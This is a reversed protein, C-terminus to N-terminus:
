EGLMRRLSEENRQLFVPPACDVADQLSCLAHHVAFARAVVLQYEPETTPRWQTIFSETAVIDMSLQAFVELAGDGPNGTLREQLKRAATVFPTRGHTREAGDLAMGFPMGTQAVTRMAREMKKSNRAFSATALLPADDPSTTKTLGMTKLASVVETVRVTRLDSLSTDPRAAVVSPASGDDAVVFLAKTRFPEELMWRTEEVVAPSALRTDLVVLPVRASTRHVVDRWSHPGIIRLNDAEFHEWHFRSHRLPETLSPELLVVVRYPYIGREILNFLRVTEWRSSGLLLVSPPMAHLAFTYLHFLIVPLLVIKPYYVDRLPLVVGFVIVSLIPLFAIWANKGRLTYRLTCMADILPTRKYLRVTALAQQAAWMLTAVLVGSVAISAWFM